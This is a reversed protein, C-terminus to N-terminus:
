LGPLRWGLGLSWEATSGAFRWEVGRIRMEGILSLQPAIRVATGGAVSLTPAWDNGLDSFVAVTGIGGGAYPRLRGLNWRYHLHAEPVFLTSRGFQQNPKALLGRGELVLHSGLDRTAGAALAMTQGTGSLDYDMAVATIAVESLTQTYGPSAGAALVTFLVFHASRRAASTMDRQQIL